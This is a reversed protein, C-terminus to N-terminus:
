RKAVDAILMYGGGWVTKIVKPNRTDPDIKKRLRSVQNDISRDFVDPSRGSVRDLLFERSLVIRPNSLFVMLLRFEATTLAITRDGENGALVQQGVDLTWDGFAITGPRMDAYQRPLTKARRLVTKIRALLERPNFPKTVYDDAGLELGIIRETEEVVATLLIVPIDGTQRLRQCIEFGSEGPMLVDLVVLDIETRTLVAKLDEGNAATSTRFGHRRIYDALPERIDEHDDVVVVHPEPNQM